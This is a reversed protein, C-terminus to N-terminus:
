LQKEKQRWLDNWFEKFGYLPKKSDYVKATEGGFRELVGGPRHGVKEVLQRAPRAAREIIAQGVHPAVDAYCALLERELSFYPKKALDPAMLNYSRALTNLNTIALTLYSMEAKEWAADRFPAPLPQSPTQPEPVTVEAIPATDSVSIAPVQLTETNPAEAEKTEVTVQVVPAASDRGVTSPAEQTIKIMVPHDSTTTPFQEVTRKRPNNIKESEAYKEATRVQEQLTGGRSSITRAAHRKWDNRLRGRFVNVARVLEQQKEIWPPV